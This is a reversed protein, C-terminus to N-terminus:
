PNWGKWYPALKWAALGASAIIGGFILFGALQSAVAEWFSLGTVTVCAAHLLPLPM